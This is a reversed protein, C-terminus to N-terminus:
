EVKETYRSSSSIWGEKGDDYSIKYWGEKEELLPYKEGPKVRTNVPTSKGPGERVALGGSNMIESNEKILIKTKSTQKEGSVSPTPLTAASSTSEESGALALQFQVILKYGNTAQVRVTRAVFGPSNVSVDHDGVTVDKLLLPTAGKEQGDILVSAADPQSLIAMQAEDQSIKELTLIEGSSTLESIGLDRNVYTLVTPNLKIKGQWSSTQLTTGEPILKLIYEGPPYKDEFPTKSILKDNLFITAAPTSVIRFGSTSSIKSSFFKYGALGLAIILLFVIFLAKKNM